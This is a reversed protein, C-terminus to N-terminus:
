EWREALVGDALDVERLILAHPELGLTDNLLCDGMHAM